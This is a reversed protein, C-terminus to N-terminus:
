MPPSRRKEANLRRARNKAVSRNSANSSFVNKITRPAAGVNTNANSSFLNKIIGPAAGVNNNASPSILNKMGNKAREISPLGTPAAEAVDMSRSAPTPTTAEISLLPENSSNNTGGIIRDILSIPMIAKAENILEDVDAGM